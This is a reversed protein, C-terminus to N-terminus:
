KRTESYIYIQRMEGNNYRAVVKKELAPIITNRYLQLPPVKPDRVTSESLRTLEVNQFYEKGKRWLFGELAMLYHYSGNRSLSTLIFRKEKIM